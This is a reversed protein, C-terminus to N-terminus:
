QNVCWNIKKSFGVTNFNTQKYTSWNEKGKKCSIAFGTWSAQPAIEKSKKKMAFRIQDLMFSVRSIIIILM